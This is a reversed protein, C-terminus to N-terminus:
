WPKFSCRAAGSCGQTKNLAGHVFVLNAVRILAPKEYFVPVKGMLAEVAIALRCLDGVPRKM